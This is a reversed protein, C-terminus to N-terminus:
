PLREACHDAGICMALRDSNEINPAAIISFILDMGYPSLTIERLCRKAALDYLAIRTPRFITSSGNLWRLNEKFKTSRLQTFGVWALTETLPLLGRCWGLVHGKPNDITNLDIVEEVKLSLPNAIVLHADVTTFYIKDRFIHGDHPSGVDIDIRAGPSTICIADKLQCRTAWVDDGLMFAFNPHSRHPKTTAVKRYDVNRSFRAWTDEGATSWERLIKGKLDVEVVMDLGTVVVILTGSPTPRVHHLDNFCPLSLYAVQRFGPVEFIIVETSTCVYLRNEFLTAAKFAIGPENDTCAEAPTVYELKETVKETDPDLRLLIANKTSHWEKLPLVASNRQEAGTLYLEGMDLM